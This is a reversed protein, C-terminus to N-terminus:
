KFSENVHTFNVSSFQRSPFDLSEQLKHLDPVIKSRLLLMGLHKYGCAAKIRLQKYLLAWTFM